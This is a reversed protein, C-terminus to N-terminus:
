AKGSGAVALDPYGDGNLDAARIANPSNGDGIGLTDAFSFIGGGENFHVTVSDAVSNAVAVDVNGDNDLDAACVGKPGDHALFTFAANFIADDGSNLLISFTSDGFNAVALDPLADANFHSAVIGKPNDGVDFFLSTDAFSGDGNNLLVLVSDRGSITIALDAFGDGDFDATAASAPSGSVTDAAHRSFIGEGDNMFVSVSDITAGRNLVIMDQFGDDNMDDAIVFFPNSRVPYSVAADFYPEFALVGAPLVVVALLAIFINMRNM